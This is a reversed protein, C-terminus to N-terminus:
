LRLTCSVHHRGARCKNFTRQTLANLHSKRHSYHKNAPHQLQQLQEPASPTRSSLSRAKSKMGCRGHLRQTGCWTHDTCLQVHLRPSCCCCCCGYCGYCCCCCGFLTAATASQTHNSWCHQGTITNPWATYHHHFPNLSRRATYTSPRMGSYIGQQALPMADGPWFFSPTPYIQVAANHPLVTM